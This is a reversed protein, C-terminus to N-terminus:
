YNSIPDPRFGKMAASGSGEAATKPKAVTKKKEAKKQASTDASTSSNSAGQAYVTTAGVSTVLLAAAALVSAYRLTQTLTM